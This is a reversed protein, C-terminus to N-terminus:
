SCCEPECCSAETKAPDVVPISAETVDADKVVFVEWRYGNPDTVWVKDQLAYCCTTDTEELIEFGAASLRKTASMVDEPTKVQIGLHNLAGPDEPTLESKNLTFNLAPEDLEFKAYDPKLKVPENGFFGRYFAVSEDLKNTNLAVHVKNM